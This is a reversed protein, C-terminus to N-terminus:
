SYSVTARDDWAVDFAYTSGTYYGNSDYNYKRIWWKADSTASGRPALAAYLMQGAANFEVKDPPIDPVYGQGKNLPGVMISLYLDTLNM